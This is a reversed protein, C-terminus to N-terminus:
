FWLSNNLLFVFGIIKKCFEEVLFFLNLKFIVVVMDLGRLESYVWYIGFVYIWLIYICLEYVVYVGIICGDIKKCLFKFFVNNLKWDKYILFFVYEWWNELVLICFNLIICYVYCKGYFWNYRKM